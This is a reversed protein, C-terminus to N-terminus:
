VAVQGENNEVITNVEVVKKKKRHIKRFDNKRQSFKDNEEPSASARRKGREALSSENDQEKASLSNLNNFGSLVDNAQKISHKKGEIVIKGRSVDAQIGKESLSKKIEKLRRYEERQEKSFDGSVRINHNVKLLTENDFFIKKDRYHLLSIAVPRKGVSFGIRKINEVRNEEIGIEEIIEMVYNFLDVNIEKKDEINHLLINMNRSEKTVADMRRKMIAMERRLLKNEEELAVNSSKLESIDKTHVEQTATIIKIKEDVGTVKKDVGLILKKLDKLTVEEEKDGM